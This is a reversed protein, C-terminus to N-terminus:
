ITTKSKHKIKLTKVVFGLPLYKIINQYLDKMSKELEVPRIYMLEAEITVKKM